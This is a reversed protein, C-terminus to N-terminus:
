AEKFCFINFAKVDPVEETIAELMDVHTVDKYSFYQDIADGPVGKPWYKRKKILAAAYVGFELLSSVGKSVCFGSDLLVWKGTSFISECMQLILGVTEGLEEWKNNSLETPRYKGEM